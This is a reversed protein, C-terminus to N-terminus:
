RNRKKLRGAFLQAAYTNRRISGINVLYSIDRTRVTRNHLTLPGWSEDIVIWEFGYEEAVAMMDELSFEIAAKHYLLPGLNIWLGGPKLVRVITDFYEMMNKATDMFFYTVVADYHDTQNVFEANFDGEVFLVASANVAVDPFVVARTMEARSPQHSWWDIFPHITESRPTALTEVYRYVLRMYSSYENATVEFAPLRAV